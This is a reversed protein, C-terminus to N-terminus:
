AVSRIIRDIQMVPIEVIDKIAARAQAHRRMYHSEKRVDQNLWTPGHLVTLDFTKILLKTVLAQVLLPKLAQRLGSRADSLPAPVVCCM